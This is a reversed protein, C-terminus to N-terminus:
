GTPQTCCGTLPNIFQPPCGIIPGCPTATPAPTRTPTPTAPKPTATAPAATSAPTPTPTPANTPAVTPGGPTPVVLRPPLCVKKNVNNPAQTCTLPARCDGFDESQCEGFPRTQQPPGVAATPTVGIPMVTTTPTPTPRPTPTAPVPRNFISALVYNAAQNSHKALCNVMKRLTPSQGGCSGAEFDDLDATTCAARVAALLASKAAREEDRSSATGGGAEVTAVRTREELVTNFYQQTADAVADLCEASAAAPTASGLLSLLVAALAASTTPVLRKM